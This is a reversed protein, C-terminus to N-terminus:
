RGLKTRAISAEESLPYDKLIAEYYEKAKKEDGRQEYLRALQLLASPAKNCDVMERRQCREILTLWVAEAKDMEGLDRYAVGLWFYANDTLPTKPYKRIFEIFKSKSQSLQGLNYLKFAEDYDRQYEEQSQITLRAEQTFSEERRPEPLRTPPVAQPPSVRGTRLKEVDLRMSAVNESLNDVRSETKLNREELVRQRDELQAIKSELNYMSKDFEEKTVGGCSFILAVFTSATFFVSKRM